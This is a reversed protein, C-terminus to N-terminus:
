DAIVDRLVPDRLWGDPGGDADVLVTIEDAVPRIASRRRAPRERQRLAERLRARADADLGDQAAHDGM